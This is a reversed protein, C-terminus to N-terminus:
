DAQDPQQGPRGHQGGGPRGAHRHEDGRGCRGPGPRSRRQHRGRTMAVLHGEAQEERIRALKMEPTAEAIFDDVGAEAAISAATLANDGTVMVTRIGMARLRAFREKIGGKVIDKLYIVGLVDRGRAM